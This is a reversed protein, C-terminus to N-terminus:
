AGPKRSSFQPGLFYQICFNSLAAIPAIVEEDTEVVRRSLGIVQEKAFRFGACMDCVECIIMSGDSISANNICDLDRHHEELVGGSTMISSSKFLLIESRHAEPISMCKVCRCTAFSFPAAGPSTCGVDTGLFRFSFCGPVNCDCSGCFGEM